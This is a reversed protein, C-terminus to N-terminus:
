STSSRCETRRHSRYESAEDGSRWVSLIILGALLLEFVESLHIHLFHQEETIMHWGLVTSLLPVTNRGALIVCLAGVSISALVMWKTRQRLNKLMAYSSWAGLMGFTLALTLGVFNLGTKERLLELVYSHVDLQKNFGLVLCFGMVGMWFQKERKERLASAEVVGACIIAALLYGAVCMWAILTPDNM